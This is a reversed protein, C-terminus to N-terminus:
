LKLNIFAGYNEKFAKQAGYRDLNAGAGVTINKYTAGLRLYLYSRFHNKNEIDYQYNAQLRSYIAWNNKIKPKYEIFLLNFIKHYHSYYYTALYVISINKNSYIYQLGVMPKLGEATNFSVGANISLRNTFKYYLIATNLYENKSVDNQYDAAFSSINLIAVKKNETIPKNVIIQSFLRNNGALIEVIVPPKLKTTDTKQQAKVNNLICLNGIALVLILHRM